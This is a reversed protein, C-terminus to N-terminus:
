RGPCGVGAAGTEEVLLVDEIAVQALRVEDVVEVVGAAATVVEVVDATVHASQVLVDVEILGALVLVLVAEAVVHASQVEELSDVTSVPAAVHAQDAGVSDATPVSVAVHPQDAGLSDATSVLVAVHLQDAGLSDAEAEAEAEEDPEWGLGLPPLPPLAPIEEM